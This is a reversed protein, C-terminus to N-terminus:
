KEGKAEMWRVAFIWGDIWTKPQVPIMDFDVHSHIEEWAASAENLIEEVSLQKESL